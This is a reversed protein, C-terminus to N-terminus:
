QRGIGYPCSPCDLKQLAELMFEYDGSMVRLNCEREGDIGAEERALRDKCGVMARRKAAPPSSPNNNYASGGSADGTSLRNFNKANTSYTIESNKAASSLIDSVGANSVEPQSSLTTILAPILFTSISRRRQSAVNEVANDKEILKNSSKSNIKRTHKKMLANNREFSIKSQNISSWANNFKILQIFNLVLLCVSRLPATKM